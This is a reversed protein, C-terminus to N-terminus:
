DRACPQYNYLWDQFEDNTMKPSSQRPFTENDTQYYRMETLASRSQIAQTRQIRHKEYRNLAEEISSLQSLCYALEYADEFTTNAGQAMAPAM